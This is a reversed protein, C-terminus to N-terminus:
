CTRKLKAIYFGDGKTEVPNLTVEKILEFNSHHDLFTQVQKENEKRNLTCTSYVLIGDNKLLSHHISLCKKNYKLSNM